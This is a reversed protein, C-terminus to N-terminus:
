VGQRVHNIHPSHAVRALSCEGVEVRSPRGAQVPHIDTRSKHRLYCRHAMCLPYSRHAVVEWDQELQQRLVRPHKPWPQAPQIDRKESSIGKTLLEFSPQGLLM